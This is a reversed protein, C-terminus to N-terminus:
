RPMGAGRWVNHPEAWGIPVFRRPVGPSAEAFRGVLFVPADWDRGVALDHHCSSAWAYVPVADQWSQGAPRFVGVFPGEAAQPLITKHFEARWGQTLYEGEIVSMNEPVSSPRVTFITKVGGIRCAQTPSALTTLMVAILWVARNM